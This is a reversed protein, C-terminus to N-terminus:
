IKSINEEFISQIIEQDQIMRSNNDCTLLKFDDSHKLKLVKAIEIILEAATTNENIKV